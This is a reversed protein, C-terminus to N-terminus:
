NQCKCLTESWMRASLSDSLIECFMTVIVYIANKDPSPEYYDDFDHGGDFDDDGTLEDATTRISSFGGM